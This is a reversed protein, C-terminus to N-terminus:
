WDTNGSLLYNHLDQCVNSLPLIAKLKLSKDFLMGRIVHLANGQYFDTDAEALAVTM